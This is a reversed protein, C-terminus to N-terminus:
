SRLPPQPTCKESARESKRKQHAKESSSSEQRAFMTPTVAKAGLEVRRFYNEHTESINLKWTLGLVLIFTDRSTGHRTGRLVGQLHANFFATVEPQVELPSSDRRLEWHEVYGGTLNQVGPSLQQSIEPSGRGLVPSYRRKFM